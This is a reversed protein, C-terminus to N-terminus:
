PLAAGLVISLDLKAASCFPKLHSLRRVTMLTMIRIPASTNPTAIAAPQAM